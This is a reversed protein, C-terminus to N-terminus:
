IKWIQPSCTSVAYWVNSNWEVRIYSTAQLFYM